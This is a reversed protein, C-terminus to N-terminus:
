NLREVSEKCSWVPETDVVVINAFLRKCGFRGDCFDRFNRVYDGLAQIVDGQGLFRNPVIVKENVVFTIHTMM